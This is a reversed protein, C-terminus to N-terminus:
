VRDLEIRTPLPMMCRDSTFSRHLCGADRSLGRLWMCRKGLFQGTRSQVHMPKLPVAECCQPCSTSLCLRRILCVTYDSTCADSFGSAQTQPGLDDM